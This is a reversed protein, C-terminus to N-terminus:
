APPSSEQGKLCRVARDFFDDGGMQGGKLALPLYDEALRGILIPVGPCIDAAYDLCDPALHGVVASSTDGGAVILGAVAVDRLSDRVFEASADAICAPSVGAVDATLYVLCDQGRSLRERVWGLALDRAPVGPLIDAPAVPLRTMDRAAAIQATTGPSRSGAFAFVPGDGRLDNRGSIAAPPRNAIWAEAVSSPGIVLVPGEEALLAGGAAIVDDQDFIDYFRPFPARLRAGRDIRALGALGIRTFHRILDAEDMPTVPHCSMVPHRDIRHVAGDPGQAFLTGFVAYRGLSPQGGIVAVKGIGLSASLGLAFAAINGTGASSDFTSCVKVHVFDPAYGALGRGIRAALATIDASGLSRANTAIGWADLGNIESPDPLDRFLRARFGARALTALTDSAGTFDDAVFVYTM